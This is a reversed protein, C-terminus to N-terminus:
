YPASTCAPTAAAKRVVAEGVVLLGEHKAAGPLSPILDDIHGRLPQLHRAELPERLFLEDAHHRHVLAWQM